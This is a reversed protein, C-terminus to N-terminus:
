CTIIASRKSSEGTIDEPDNPHATTHCQPPSGAIRTMKSIDTATVSYRRGTRIDFPTLKKLRRGSPKVRRVILRMESEPLKASPSGLVQALADTLVRIHDALTNSGANGERLLVALYKSTNACWAALPHFGWTKKFTVASEQKKSAATIITADIDIVIWGTLRKGAVGPRPFCGPRLHLLSWVHRRVRARVGAIKALTAEDLAALTRSLISDSAASAFLGQHHVQLQEAESICHGCAAAPRERYAGGDSLHGTEAASVTEAFADKCSLAGKM